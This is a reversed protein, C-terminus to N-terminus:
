HFARKTLSSKYFSHLNIRKLAHSHGSLFIFNQYIVYTLFYYAKIGTVVTVKAVMLQTFSTFLHAKIKWSKMNTVNLSIFNRKLLTDSM